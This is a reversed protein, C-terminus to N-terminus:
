SHVFDIYLIVSKSNESNWRYNFSLKMMGSWEWFDFYFINRIIMAKLSKMMVDFLLMLLHTQSKNTTNWLVSIMQWFDRVIIVHQLLKRRLSYNLTTTGGYLMLSIRETWLNLEVQPLHTPSQRKTLSSYMAFFAGKKLCLM